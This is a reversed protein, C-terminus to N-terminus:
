RNTPIVALQELLAQAEKKVRRDVADRVLRESETRASEYDGLAARCRARNLLASQLYRSHKPGARVLADFSELAEYMRHLEVLARSRLFLAYGEVAPPLGAELGRRVVEIVDAPGRARAGDLELLFPRAERTREHFLKALHDRAQRAFDASGLGTVERLAQEHDKSAAMAEVFRLTGGPGPVVELYAAALPGEASQPLLPDTLEPALTARLFHDEDCFARPDAMYEGALADDIKEEVHGALSVALGEKLWEPALEYSLGCRQNLALHVHEHALILEIAFAGLALPEEYVLIVPGLASRRADWITHAGSIGSLALLEEPTEVMGIVPVVLEHEQLGLARAARNRAAPLASRIAQARLEHEPDGAYKGRAPGMASGLGDMRVSAIAAETSRPQSEILLQLLERADHERGIERFSSGADLAAERFLAEAEFLRGGSEADALAPLLFGLAELHHGRSQQVRALFVQAYLAYHAAIPGIAGLVSQNGQLEARRREVVRALLGRVLSELEDPQWRWYLAEAAYCQLL